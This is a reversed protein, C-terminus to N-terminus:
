KSEFSSFYVLIDRGGIDSLLYSTSKCQLCSDTTRDQSQNFYVTLSLSYLAAQLRATNYKLTQSRSVIPKPRSNELNFVFDETLLDERITSDAM